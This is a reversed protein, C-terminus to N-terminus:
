GGAMQLYCQRRMPSMALVDAEHWGYASALVHVERLIRQAWANIETWIYSLIDFTMQWQHSCDPCCLNLQVNAQPDAQMMQETVAKFVKKPLHMVSKRRSNHTAHLLCRKLLLQRCTDVDKLHAIAELDLSNLLRFRIEYGDISLSREESIEIEPEERIDAVKFILELREDCGPCAALSVLEPGFAWERLTLLRADRQGISLEALADLSTEPCAAALLTLARQVPQQAIGQEWVLLLESDTLARM